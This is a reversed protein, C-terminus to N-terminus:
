GSLPYLIVLILHNAWELLTLSLLASPLICCLGPHPPQNTGGLDISTQGKPPHLAVSAPHNTQSVLNSSLRVRALIYHLWTLYNTWEVLTSWLIARPLICCLQPLTTPENWWPRGSNPVQFSAVFSPCLPQNTGNLDVPTQGKPPHLTVLALHNTREVLTSQLRFRPLICHFQLSTTPENWWLPGLCPKQCFTVCFLAMPSLYINVTSLHYNCKILNWQYTIYSFFQFYM